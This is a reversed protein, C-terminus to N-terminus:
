GGSAYRELVEDLETPNVPKTMYGDMGAALCRERDGSMAHATLAVIPIRKPAAERQRIARTAELGDLEPMQVDMFILDFRQSEFAELAARGSSAITVEHGRKHLLRQMVMQNVTNDEAVLVKLRQKGADARQQVRVGQLERQELVRAITARLEEPAFPKVLLAEVDFDRCLTAGERQATSNVMMVVALPMRRARVCELLSRGTAVPMDFDVLALACADGSSACEMLREIAQSASAASVIRMGLRGLAQELVRRQAANDDVIQIRAGRLLLAGPPVAPEPQRAVTGLQMTLNVQRGRQAAPEQWIRGHMLAVLRASITLGLDASNFQGANATEQLALDLQQLDGTLTERGSTDLIAFQLICHEDDRAQLEATVVVEGRETARIADGILNLFVQRLRNADGRVVAPVNPAIDCVLEIGKRHAQLALTRVVSGLAERIEFDRAELELKGAEIKSFDLIDNIVGLLSDGSLKLAEVYQRQESSLDTDLCLESMGIIGNLPTRIEHSMNALFESKARNAADAALRAEELMREADKHATIENSVELVHTASGAEDLLPRKVTQYWRLRGARDAYSHEPITIETLTQLVKRDVAEIQRARTEDLGLEDDSMGELQEPLRGCEQALARNVLTYRGTRDKVSIRDPCMDIVERLFESQAEIQSRQWEVRKRLVRAWFMAACVLLTLVAIIPWAHRWNWWPEAYLIQVDDASRLMVHFSDAVANYDGRFRDTLQQRQVACVGTVRVISGERLAPLPISGDLEANFVGDGAQLVLTQQAASQGQSVLRAEISVLRNDLNGDLVQEPTVRLPEVDARQGLPRVVADTLLPGRNSPSAYGVAEIVDGVQADSSSVQVQLSGSDDQIYLSDPARLTVAGRVLVRRNADAGGNFRLLQDIRQVRLDRSPAAAQLVEIDELSHVFVRYGTLVGKSTFSTGLVGRVRVRADVLSELRQADSPTILIGGVTGIPTQLNFEYYDGNSVFPRVLGDLEVWESDYAGSPAIEPQVNQPTPLSTRGIAEIWPQAIVPAFEGPATVGSIAVRAGPELGALSQGWADVWIAAEGTQVFLFDYFYQVSTVVAEIRLPLSKAADSRSLARIQKISTLNAHRESDRAALSPEGGIRVLAAREIVVNWRQRTPWGVAEIHEGSQFAAAADSKVPVLIGQSDILLTDPEDFRVIRGRLRIRQGRTVWDANRVLDLGSAVLAPQGRPSASAILDEPSIVWLHPAFTEAIRDLGLQLTGSVTVRTDILTAPDLDAAALITVSMVQGADGLELMLREGDFAAHRVVGSIQLRRGARQHSGRLLDPISAAEPEPLAHSRREVISANTLRVSKLGSGELYENGITAHLTIREGPKPLTAPLEVRLGSLGDQFYFSGAQPDAFTVVGRLEVPDGARLRKLDNITLQEVNAFPLRTTSILPWTLASLALALM